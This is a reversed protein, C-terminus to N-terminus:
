SNISPVDKKDGKCTQGNKELYYRKMEGFYKIKDISLQFTKREEFQPIAM